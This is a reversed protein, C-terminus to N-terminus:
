GPLDRPMIATPGDFLSRAWLGSDLAASRTRQYRGSPLDDDWKGYSSTGLKLLLDRAFGARGPDGCESLIKNAIAPANVSHAQYVCCALDMAETWDPGVRLATIERGAYPRPARRRTREVLHEKGFEIQAKHGDPHVFLRHLDIAWARARDWPPGSKPVAGGSPPTVEDRILSGHVLDGARAQIAKGRVSVSGDELHRVTGDQALYWGRSRLRGLVAETAAEFESSGQVTELRRLLKWFGGQDDAANYDESALEAPYVAIHQDPGATICTGDYAVIAGFKAGSELKTTLWYARDVHFSAREGSPAPIPTVGRIWPGSYSRLQFWQVEPEPM